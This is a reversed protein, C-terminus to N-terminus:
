RLLLGSISNPSRVLSSPNQALEGYKEFTAASVLDVHVFFATFGSIRGLEFYRGSNRTMVSVFDGVALPTGFYDRHGRVEQWDKECSWLIWKEKKRKIFGLPKPSFSSCPYRERLHDDYLEFAPFVEVEGGSSLFFKDGQVSSLGVEKRVTVFEGGTTLGGAKALFLLNGNESYSKLAQIMREMM